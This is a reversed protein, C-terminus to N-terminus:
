PTIKKTQWSPRSYLIEWSLTQGKTNLQHGLKLWCLSYNSHFSCYRHITESLGRISSILTHCSGSLPRWPWGASNTHGGSHVASLHICEATQKKWGHMECRHFSREALVSGPVLFIFTIQVLGRWWFGVTWVRAHVILKLQKLCWSLTCWIICVSFSFVDWDSLPWSKSRSLPRNWLNMCCAWMHSHKGCACPPKLQEWTHHESIRFYVIDSVCEPYKGPSSFATEVAHLGLNNM